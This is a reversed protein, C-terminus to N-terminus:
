LVLMRRRPFYGATRQRFVANGIVGDTGAMTLTHGFSPPLAGARMTFAQTGLYFELSHTDTTFAGVSPYFDKVHGSGPFTTRLEHHFYAHQAGSDLLMRFEAGRVRARAVPLGHVEDLSVPTGPHTLEEKSITVSERPADFVFDFHGIVDAGLLGVCDVGVIQSLAKPKLGNIDRKLPFTEGLLTVSPASGMSAPAGTALLWYDGQLELFLYGERPRLPLRTM